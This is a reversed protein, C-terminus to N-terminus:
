HSAMDLRVRQSTHKFNSEDETDLCPPLKQLTCLSGRNACCGPAGCQPQIQVWASQASPMTPLLVAILWSVLVFWVCAM